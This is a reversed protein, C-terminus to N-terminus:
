TSPGPRRVLYVPARCEDRTDDDRCSPWSLGLSVGATAVTGVVRAYRIGTRRDVIVDPGAAAVEWSQLREVVAGESLVQEMSPRFGIVPDVDGAVEVYIRNGRAEAATAAHAQWDLLRVEMKMRGTRDLVVHVDGKVAASRSLAPRLHAARLMTAADAASQPAQRVYAEAALQVRALQEPEGGHLVDALANLGAGDHGSDILAMAQRLAVHPDDPLIRSLASLDALAHSPRGASLDADARRLAADRLARM